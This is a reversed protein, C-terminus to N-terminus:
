ARKDGQRKIGGKHGAAKNPGNGKLWRQTAPRLKGAQRMNSSGQSGRSAQGRM